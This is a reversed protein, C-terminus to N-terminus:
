AVADGGRARSLLRRQTALYERALDVMSRRVRDLEARLEACREREEPSRQGTTRIHEAYLLGFRRYTEELREHLNHLLKAKQDSIELQAAELRTEFVHRAQRVKAMLITERRIRRLDRTLGIKSLLWIVWKGPDWHWARVGNRYDSEFAHHYNHYGEGFTFFALLGSDRSSQSSDYPQRGVVHALSNILFTAHQVAVVRLCGGILFGGLAGVALSGGAWSAYAAGIGAPFGLGFALALPVYLRDQLRVLPDGDIDSVNTLPLEPERYRLLWGMHAHFFGRKISHPDYPHGEQDTFRHHYRHESAWRLASGEFAAAGFVLTALRVPWAARFARHAFLRHYGITISLGTVYAMAVFHLVDFWGVGFRWLYIPTGIMAVTFSGVLFLATTWNIPARTETM